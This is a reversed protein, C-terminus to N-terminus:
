LVPAVLKRDSIILGKLLLALLLLGLELNRLDWLNRLIRHNGSTGVRSLILVGHLSETTTSLMEKLRLELGLGLRLGLGLGIGLWLRHYNAIVL